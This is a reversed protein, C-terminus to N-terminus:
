ITGVAVLLAQLLMMGDVGLLYVYENNVKKTVQMMWKTCIASLLMANFFEINGTHTLQWVSLVVFIILAYDAYRYAITAGTRVPLTRIGAARDSEIDRIDFLLCLVFMFVFRRILVLWYSTPDIGSQDAPFWVTVLTWELSLLFIKFLGYEKLRKRRFPLLPLSYLSALLALIALVVFHRPQLWLVTSLILTFGAIGLFRQTQRHSASWADRPTAATTGPSNKFLYHLNYQVLTAGFIFLYVSPSNPSIGLLLNTEYCLAVACCAIFVAGFILFDALKKMCLM